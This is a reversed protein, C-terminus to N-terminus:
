SLLYRIQDDLALLWVLPKMSISKTDRGRDRRSQHIYLDIKVYFYLQEIQNTFM